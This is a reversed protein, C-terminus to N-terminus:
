DELGPWPRGVIAKVGDGLTITRFSEADFDEPDRQRIRYFNASADVGKVLFGEEKAWRRAEREEFLDRPFLLSQIRSRDKTETSPVGARARWEDLNKRAM